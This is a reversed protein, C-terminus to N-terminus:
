AHGANSQHHNAPQSAMGLGNEVVRQVDGMRFPKKLWTMVGMAYADRRARVDDWCSIMVIPIDSYVRDERLRRVLDLGGMVPMQWDVILMDVPQKALKDLADVGNEAEIVNHGQASLAFRLMQRLSPQDDVVCITKHM